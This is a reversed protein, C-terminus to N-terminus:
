PQLVGEKFLAICLQAAADEPTAALTQAWDAYLFGHHGEGAVYGYHALWGSHDREDRPTIQLWGENAGITGLVRPLKRLLFGLDYAPHVSVLGAMLHSLHHIVEPHGAFEKYYFETNSWGSLEYLEKCLELSAVNM